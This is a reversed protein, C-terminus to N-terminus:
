KYSSAAKSLITIDGPGPEGMHGASIPLIWGLKQQTKAKGGTNTEDQVHSHSELFIDEGKAQIDHYELELRKGQGDPVETRNMSALKEQSLEQM